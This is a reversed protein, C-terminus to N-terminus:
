DYDQKWDVGIYYLMGFTHIAEADGEKVHIALDHIAQRRINLNGFEHKLVIAAHRTPMVENKTKPLSDAPIQAKGALILLCCAVILINKM